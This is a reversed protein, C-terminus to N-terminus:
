SINVNKRTRRALSTALHQLALMESNQVVPKANNKKPPNPLGIAGPSDLQALLINSFTSTGLFNVSSSPAQKDHCPM